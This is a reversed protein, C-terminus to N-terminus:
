INLEEASSAEREKRKEYASRKQENIKESNEAYFERRMSNLKDKSTKGEAGYYIRKYKDPNYGGYKIDQKHRVAYACDCNAHIHEVHGDDVAADSAYQWGRSSLAICYACTDGSPIWAWEAHDRVANNHITDQSTQKVLRAVSSAIKETNQSVKLVGNVTKAVEQYTATQAPEAAPLILGELLGLSDYMECALEAAATGYKDSISYAHDILKQRWASYKHPDGGYVMKSTKEIYVTMDNAAADNVKRLAEIYRNWSDASVTM